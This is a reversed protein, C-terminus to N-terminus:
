GGIAVRYAGVWGTCAIDAGADQAEMLEEITRVGGANSDFYLMQNYLKANGGPYQYTGNMSQGVICIEGPEHAKWHARPTSHVQLHLFTGASVETQLDPFATNWRTIGANGHRFGEGEFVVDYGRVRENYEEVTHDKFYTTAVMGTNRLDQKLASDYAAKRQNLYIPVAIAALIGIIIIVVLIEVMTFGDENREELRPTAMDRIKVAESKRM